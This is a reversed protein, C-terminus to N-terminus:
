PLDVITVPFRGRGPEAHEFWALVSSEYEGHPGWHAYCHRVHQEEAWFDGRMEIEDYEYAAALFASNTHHGKSYYALPGGYIEELMEIHLPYASAM